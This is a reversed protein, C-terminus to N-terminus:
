KASEDSTEEQTVKALWTAPNEVKVQIKLLL